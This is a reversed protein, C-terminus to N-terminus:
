HFSNFVFLQKNLTNPMANKHRMPKKNQLHERTSLHKIITIIIIIEKYHNEETTRSMNKKRYPNNVRKYMRM